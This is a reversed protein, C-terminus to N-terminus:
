GNNKFDKIAQILTEKKMNEVNLKNTKIAGLASSLNNVNNSLKKIAKDADTANAKISISLSDIDAM